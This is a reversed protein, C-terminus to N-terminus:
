AAHESDIRLVEYVEAHPLPIRRRVKWDPDLVLLGAFPLWREQLQRLWPLPRLRRRDRTYMVCVGLVAEGPGFALGRLFGRYSAVTTHATQGAELRVIASIHSEIVYLSLGHPTLSHPQCLPEHVVEFRRRAFDLKLLKGETHWAATLRKERREGPTLTFVTCYLDGQWRVLCNVHCIDRADEVIQMRDVERGQADLKLIWNGVSAVLYFHGDIWKLDHSDRLPHSTLQESRWTEPDIRYITSVDKKPNRIGSVAYFCGDPGRTAGRFSGALIKRPGGAQSDLLYVGSERVANSTFVYHAM